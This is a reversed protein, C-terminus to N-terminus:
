LERVSQDKECLDPSSRTTEFAPSPLRNPCHSPPFAVLAVLAGQDAEQITPLYLWLAPPLRSACDLGSSLPTALKLMATGQM